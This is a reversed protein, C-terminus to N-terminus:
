DMWNFLMKIGTLIYVDKPLTVRIYTLEKILQAKRSRKIELLTLFSKRYLVLYYVNKTKDHNSLEPITLFFAAM